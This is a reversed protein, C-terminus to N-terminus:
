VLLFCVLYILIKQSPLMIVSFIKPSPFPNFVSVSTTLLFIDMINYIKNMDRYDFGNFYRMGSFIVRNELNYRAILQRLNSVQAPDDPDTHMFLVANPIHKAVESMVKITRDLM